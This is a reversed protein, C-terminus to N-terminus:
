RGMRQRIFKEIGAESFLVKRGIRVTFPLTRSRRYLWDPATGIKTAAEKATLLRDGDRANESHDNTEPFSLRMLLLSDLKALEARLTPIVEPPLLSVREPSELLEHLKPVPRLAM